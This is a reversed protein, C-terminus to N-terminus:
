WRAKLGGWSGSEVTVPLAQLSMETHSVVQGVQNQQPCGSPCDVALIRTDETSAVPGVGPVFGVWGRIESELTGLPAGQEDTITGVGMDVVYDVVVANAFAGAGTDITEATGRVSGHLFVDSALDPVLQLTFADADVPDSSFYLWSWDALSDRWTGLHDATQRHGVGLDVPASSLLTSPWFTSASKEARETLRSRLEPRGFWLRQRLPSLGALALPPLPGVIQGVLNQVEVGPSNLATGDLILRGTLDQPPSDFEEFLISYTWSRGNEHPWLDDLATQSRAPATTMLVLAGTSILARLGLPTM